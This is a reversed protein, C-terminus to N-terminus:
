LRIITTQIKRSWAQHLQQVIQVFLSSLQGSLSLKKILVDLLRLKLLLMLKLHLIRRQRTRLLVVRVPEYWRHHRRSVCTVVVHHLQLCLQAVGHAPRLLGLGFDDAELGVPGVLLKAPLTFASIELVPNPLNDELAYTRDFTTPRSKLSCSDSLLKASNFNSLRM